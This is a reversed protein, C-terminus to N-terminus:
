RLSSRRRLTIGLVAIGTSLIAVPVIWAVDDGAAPLTGSGSGSTGSGANGNGGNPHGTDTNKTWHAVLELTYDPMTMTAFDWKVGETTYWGAFTYGPRTPAKPEKLLQGFDMSVVLSDTGNKPNYIVNYANVVFRAFLEFDEAPVTMEDFIWQVGAVADTYWGVFTHGAPVPPTQPESIKQNFEDIEQTYTVGNVVFTVTYSRITWQAFLELTGAPMADAEFDWKEGGVAATYWGNFTYGARLPAAPESILDEFLVNDGFAAGGNEPHFVVDFTDANWQAFLSLDHDPMTGTTFDWQIGETPASWWGGFIKGTPAVPEAPAPIPNGYAITDTAALSGNQPNFTIEYSNLLFRAYLTVGNVPLVDTAFNWQAGGTAATFWGAFSFGTPPTPAAPADVEEGQEVKETFLEAGNGSDFTVKVYPHADYGSSSHPTFYVEALDLNLAPRVAAVSNYGMQGTIIGNFSVRAASNVAVGRNRLWWYDPSEVWPDMSLGRELGYPAIQAIRSANNTFGYAANNAEQLSLFFVKDETDPSGPYTLGLNVFDPTQVETTAIAGEQAATFARPIFADTLWQRITSNDWAIAGSGPTYWREYDLGRQALLFLDNGDNSLVRWAIPEIAYTKGNFTVYDEGEVLGTTNTIRTQPYRGFYVTNGVVISAPDVSSAFALSPLLIGILLIFLTLALHRRMLTHIAM